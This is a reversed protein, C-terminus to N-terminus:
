NTVETIILPASNAGGDNAHPCFFPYLQENFDCGTFSYIHTAEDVDYFCVLGAEYNVFVGVKEPQSELSLIANPKDFASYNSGKRLGIGWNGNDPGLNVNGKRNISERAVGLTWEKKWKVQVEYYFRGSTFCEKSFVCVVSLFRKPNDPLNKREDSRSVQKGNKSVDIYPNATDPDLNVDVAFQQVTKLEVKNLKKMEKKLMEELQAVATRLTGEYSSHVKVKTWDKTPPDANMSQFRQLFGLHDEVDSLQELESSRKVLESIEEELETIFSEVQEERKKQKEEIMDTLQTLDREISQILATFVEVGAAKQRDTDMRSVVVSEKLEEIKLRREQIMQQIEATKKGLEDKKEEYEDILPFISHRKHDSKICVVCVCVEDTKCFMELPKNHNRCIRDELNDVPDTLLHSTKGTIQDHVELHNECYSTLCVLCSKLARLKTGTCVDCHVDGTKELQKESSSSSEEVASQRFHASTESILTNIHLEPQTDFVKKCMPCQSHDTTSWHQQICSKCFNHGCPITVPDSFVDLCISCLFCEESLLVFAASM